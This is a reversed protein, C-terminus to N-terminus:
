AVHSTLNRGPEALHVVRRRPTACGSPSPAEALHLGEGHGGALESAKDYVGVLEWGQSAAVGLAKEFRDIARFMGINIVAFQWFPGTYTRDDDESPETASPPALVAHISAATGSHTNVFYVFQAAEALHDVDDSVFTGNTGSSRM